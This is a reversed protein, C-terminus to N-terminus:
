KHIIWQHLWVITWYKHDTINNLMKSLLREHEGFAANIQDFIDFFQFIIAFHSIQIIKFHLKNRYHYLQITLSLM